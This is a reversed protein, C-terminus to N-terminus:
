LPWLTLHLLVGLCLFSGYAIPMHRARQYGYVLILLLSAAGALVVGYLLASGVQGIGLLAGIFMALYVDGLGFPAQQQPYMMRALMFLLLFVMAAAISGLLANAWSAVLLPACALAVLTAGLMVLTDILRVKWDVAATDILVVVAALLLVFRMSWGYEHWLVVMMATTVVEVALAIGDRRAVSGVIPLWCWRRQRSATGAHTQRAVVQNLLTGLALGAIVLGIV